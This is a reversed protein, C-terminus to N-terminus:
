ISQSVERAVEQRSKHLGLVHAMQIHQTVLFFSYFNESMEQPHLDGLDKTCNVHAEWPPCPTALFAEETRVWKRREFMLTLERHEKWWGCLQVHSIVVSFGLMAMIKFICFNEDIMLFSDMLQFNPSPIAVGHLVSAKESETSCDQHHPMWRWLGDRSSAKLWWKLIWPLLVSHPFWALSAQYDLGIFACLGQPWYM